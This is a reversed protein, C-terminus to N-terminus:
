PGLLPRGNIDCMPDGSDVTCVHRATGASSSGTGLSRGAPGGLALAARLEDLAKEYSRITAEDARPAHAREAARQTTTALDSSRERSAWAALDAQRRDLQAIRDLQDIRMQWADLAERLSELKSQDFRATEVAKRAVAASARVGAMDTSTSRAGLALHRRDLAALESKTADERAQALIRGEDRLRATEQELDAAQRSTGYVLASSGCLVLGLAAALVRQMRRGSREARAQIAHLEFQRSADDEALKAKANAEIIAVEAAIREQMETRKRQEAEERERRLRAETEAAMRAEEAQRRREAELRRERARREIERARDREDERIRQQEILALEALSVMVSTDAIEPTGM